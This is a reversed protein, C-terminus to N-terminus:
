FFFYTKQVNVCLNWENTYMDLANLMEQIKLNTRCDSSFLDIMQPETLAYNNEILHREFDGLYM